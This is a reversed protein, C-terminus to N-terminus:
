KTSKEKTPKQKMQESKQAAAEDNHKMTQQHVQDNQQMTQATQRMNMQHEMQSNAMDMQSQRASMMLKMQQEREKMQLEMAKFRLEMEKSQKDLMAKMQELQMKQQAEQAKMQGEAQMMQMEPNPPPQFNMLKVIDEAEIAELYQKTFVKPDITGLQLLPQMSQMKMMKQMSSAINPDANPKVSINKPDYDQKYLVQAEPGEATNLTFYVDQDLHLYNLRFIKKYEEMLARYCRKYIATFVKMGQEITAQTTTAPTNQGPMKGVFIEAISALEKGSTVLTELLKFLVDSPDRLPLPFVHKKIDDGTFDVPKWEGPQFRNGGAKIRISRGLFGAQMNSMHGADILLNTLTNVSDNIGGLLLGFGLDYISGDPNPIFGFKTFYNIPRIKVVKKEDEDMEIGESDFRAVIRVVKRTQYHVTIIYPEDYGDEDLDWFTHIELFTHPTAPSVAPDKTGTMKEKAKDAEGIPDPVVSHYDIDLFLEKNVRETVENETLYIVHSIRNASQTNKAYYDIVLDRPHILESKIIECHSDWYTKKFVCGMIPLMLCLKDMDEEWGEMEHLIQYSMHNGVRKASAAKSGQPDQGIVLGNVIRQGPVLAPYARAAFQMAATTLLPFKVNSANQWPYTKKEIVQTALKMWEENQRSWEVRSDMDMEFWEVLKSGMKNLDHDDIEEAINLQSIYSNLDKQNFDQEEQEEAEPAESPEPPPMMMPDQMQPMGGGMAGMMASAPDGGQQPAGQQSQQMLAQLQNPDIAM